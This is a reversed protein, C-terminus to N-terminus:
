ESIFFLRNLNIKTSCSHVAGATRAYIYYDVKISITNDYIINEAEVTLKIRSTHHGWGKWSDVTEDSEWVRKNLGIEKISLTLYDKEKGNTYTGYKFNGYAIIISTDQFDNEWNSNSITTSNTGYSEKSQTGTAKTTVEDSVSIPVTTSDISVSNNEKMNTLVENNTLLLNKNMILSNSTLPTSLLGIVGSLKLLNKM